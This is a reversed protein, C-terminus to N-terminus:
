FQVPIPTLQPNKATSSGIQRRGNSGWCVVQSLANLACTHGWGMAAAGKGPGLTKAPSSSDLAEVPSWRDRTRDNIGLQSFMNAGWCKLKGGDGVCMHQGLAAQFTRVMENKSLAGLEVPTSTSDTTGLGLQGFRNDGWVLPSNEGEVFVGSMLDGAFPAFLTDGVLSGVQVPENSGETDGLGLQGAIGEGWCWVDGMNDVGCAHRAGARLSVFTHGTVETPGRIIADDTGTGVQGSENAGWCFASGSSDLACAFQAGCTVDRLGFATSTDENFLDGNLWNFPGLAASTTPIQGYENDGWCAVLETVEEVEVRISACTFADGGCVDKFFPYVVGSGIDDDGEFKLVVHRPEADSLNASANGLQGRENGGWCFLGGSAVPDLRVQPVVFAWFHSNGVGVEYPM